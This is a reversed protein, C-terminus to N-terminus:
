DYLNYNHYLSIYLPYKTIPSGGIDLPASWQIQVSANAVDEDFSIVSVPYSPYGIGFILRTKNIYLFLIISPAVASQVPGYVGTFNSTPSFSRMRFEYSYYKLKYCFLIFTILAYMTKPTLGSVTFSVSSSQNIAVTWPANIGRERYEM